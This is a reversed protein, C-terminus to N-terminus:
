TKIRQTLVEHIVLCGALGLVSWVALVQLLSGNATSPEAESARVPLSATPTLPLPLGRVGPPAAGRGEPPKPTPVAPKTPAAKVVVKSIPQTQPTPATAVSQVQPEPVSPPQPVEVSEAVEEPQSPTGAVEATQAASVPQEVTAADAVPAPVPAPAPDASPAVPVPAPLPPQAPPLATRYAEFHLFAVLGFQAPTGVAESYTGDSANNYQSIRITGNQYVEEVYATHGFTGSTRVAVSGAAPTADVRVGRSPARAIWNKADGLGKYREPGVGLTSVKWATYDTCNRYYYGYLSIVNAATTGWDYNPCRGRVNYPAHACPVDPYPYGGTAALVKPTALLVTAAVAGSLFWLVGVRLSM